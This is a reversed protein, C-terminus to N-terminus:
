LRPSRIPSIQRPTARNASRNTAAISLGFGAPSPVCVCSPKGPQVIYVKEPMRHGPQPMVVEQACVIFPSKALPMRAFTPPTSSHKSEM